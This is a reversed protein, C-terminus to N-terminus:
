RDPANRKAIVCRVNAIQAIAITVWGSEADLRFKQKPVLLIDTQAACLAAAEAVSATGVSTLVLQSSERESLSRWRVVTVSNLREPSYTKLFWGSECCYDILGPENAKRDLTAIGVITALDLDYEAFVSEIARQIALQSVGRQCGIGVWLYMDFSTM